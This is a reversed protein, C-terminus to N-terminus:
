DTHNILYDAIRKSCNGDVKGILLETLEFRQMEKLQPSKLQIEVQQVLQETNIVQQAVKAFYKLDDDLRKNLRWKFIGRYSWRVKFFDCWIAPKNLATFEFLTSSADSILLSATNMFPIICAEEISSIYVNNYQSWSEFITQHNKYKEKTLSFYHPKIILNYEELLEPFDHPLCEISSPYYTPAYLITEKEPDLGLQKLDLSSSENNIIPDLKAYGTDIFSKSPFREKLRKLRHKGEVFRHQIDCDSWDYYCSKPGVGHNMMATKSCQHVNELHHFANGFIIWDPKNNFYFEKAENSNNVLTYNLKESEVYNILIDQLQKQNYLIFHCSVSNKELVDKVPLYQPLYYLHQIDFFVNM